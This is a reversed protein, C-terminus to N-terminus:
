TYEVHLNYIFVKHIIVVEPLPYKIPMTKRDRLVRGLDVVSQMRAVAREIDEHILDKRATPLMLYHVSKSEANSFSPVKKKLVQNNTPHISM